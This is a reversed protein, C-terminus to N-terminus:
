QQKSYFLFFGIVSYPYNIKKKGIHYLRPLNEPVSFQSFFSKNNM